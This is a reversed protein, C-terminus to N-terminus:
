SQKLIFKTSKRCLEKQNQNGSPDNNRWAINIAPKQLASANTERHPLDTNQFIM